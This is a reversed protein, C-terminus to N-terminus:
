SKPPAFSGLGTILHYVMSAPISNAAPKLDTDLKDLWGHAPGYDLYLTRIEDALRPLDLDPWPLAALARLRELQPWLRFSPEAADLLDVALDGILGHTESFAVLRRAWSATDRGTLREVETLLFAWEYCHGPEIVSIEGRRWDATFVESMAGSRADFMHQEFLACVTDIRRASSPDHTADFHALSAELLHMHPNALKAGNGTECDFWGGHQTDLFLTDILEFAEAALAEGRADGLAALESGALAVFAHDYLDRRDDIVHGSGDLGHAWGGKSSRADGNLFSLADEIVRDAGGDPNWGLRKARAFTFLQRPAVRGRRSSEPRPRGDMDLNEIFGGTNQDCCVQAWLPLVEDWLWHRLWAQIPRHALPRALDQVASTATEIGATDSLKTVLVSDRTAVVAVDELGHLAVRPGTTQVFVRRSRTAAAPGILVPTDFDGNTFVEHLARYDGLDNWGMSVPVVDINKAHEMVAYDISEKRVASFKARDLKGNKLASRVGELIDPAYEEMADIMTQTRFLFIGANWYFGGAALYQEATERNPKEVFRDVPRTPGSGTGPAAEQIYGYGTAPHDPQIGFTVIRGRAAGEAGIKIAAQFADFEAIHHDAPLVLLLEDPAAHLCAAAIPPASNRGVPELLIEADPLNARLLSAHRAAGIALPRLYRDSDSVRRATETLMSASSTLALFQKPRLPTSLPWLRTGGGGCLIVPRIKADAM